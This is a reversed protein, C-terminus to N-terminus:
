PQILQDRNRDKSEFHRIVLCSHRLFDVFSSFRNGRLGDDSLKTM